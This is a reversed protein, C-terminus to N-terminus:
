ARRFRRTHHAIMKKGGGKEYYAWGAIGAALVLAGGIILASKSTSPSTVSVSTSPSPTIVTTPVTVSGGGGGGSAYSFPPPASGGLPTGGNPTYQLATALAQATMPGYKGDVTLHFNGGPSSNNWATQFNSVAGNPASTVSGGNFAAILNQARDQMTLDLGDQTADGLRVDHRAPMMRALGRPRFPNVYGINQTRM